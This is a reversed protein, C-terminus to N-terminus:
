DEREFIAEYFHEYSYFHSHISFKSHLSRAYNQFGQGEVIMFPLEDDIM